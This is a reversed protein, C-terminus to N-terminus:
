GMKKFKNSLFLRKNPDSALVEVPTVSAPIFSFIRIFLLHFVLRCIVWLGQKLYKFTTLNYYFWIWVNPTPPPLLWDSMMTACSLWSTYLLPKNSKSSRFKCLISKSPFFSATCTKLLKNRLCIPVRVGVTSYIQVLTILLVFM